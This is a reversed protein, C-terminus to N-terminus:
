YCYTKATTHTNTEICSRFSIQVWFASIIMYKLEKLCKGTLQGEVIYFTCHIAPIHLSVSFVCLRLSSSVLPQLQSRSVLSLHLQVHCDSQFRHFSFVIPCFSGCLFLTQVWFCALIVSQQVNGVRTKETIMLISM